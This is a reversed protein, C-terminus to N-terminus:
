SITLFLIKSVGYTKKKIEKFEDPFIDSIMIHKYPTEIIPADNVKKIVYEFAPQM